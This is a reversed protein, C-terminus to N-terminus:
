VNGTAVALYLNLYTWQSCQIKQTILFTVAKKKRTVRVFPFWLSLGSLQVVNFATLFGWWVGVSLHCVIDNLHLVDWRCGAHSHVSQERTSAQWGKEQEQLWLPIISHSCLYCHSFKQVWSWNEKSILFLVCERHCSLCKRKLYSSAMLQGIPVNEKKVM